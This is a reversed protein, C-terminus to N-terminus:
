KCLYVKNDNHVIFCHDEDIEQIIQMVFAKNPQGENYHKMVVQATAKDDYPGSLAYLVENTKRVVVIYKAETM